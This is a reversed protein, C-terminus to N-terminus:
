FAYGAAFTLPITVGANQTFINGNSFHNIKVGVNMRRKKGAFMGISMFDQFTFHHGTDLNDLLVKSIFTPGAASYAFYVDARQTRLFTFRLLPYVSATYFRDDKQRTM